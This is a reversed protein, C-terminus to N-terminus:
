KIVKIWHPRASLQEILAPLSGPKFSGFYDSYIISQRPLVLYLPNGKSRAVEELRDLDQRTPLGVKLSDELEGVSSDPNDYSADALAKAVYDASSRSPWGAPALVAITAVPDRASLWRSQELQTRTIPLYSWGGFYGQMSALMLTLFLLWAAGGLAIRRMGHFSRLATAVVPAILVACGPLSYLFVRFIAEGGYSQGGLLFMSSFALIGAAWPAGVRRWLILFCILALLWISASLSRDAFMTFVRGDSGRTAINSNSNALPNSGTFLGYQEVYRLRPLIYAVEVAAFALPLWLPRIQRFVALAVTVAVVWVPTLQHSPVLAAFVALSLYGAAPYKKSYALLALCALAMILGSAQPAFYDQGVWNVLEALMAATLATRKGLGLGMALATVLIAMLLHIVPSFWHAVDVPDLGTITSFWSMATFFAPWQNYVDISAPALKHNSLIYDVVGIHKYTWSYIPIETVLTVTLRQIVIVSVIALSASTLRNAAIAVMFATIALATALALLVGGTTPLLGFEGVQTKRVLPVAVLWIALALTLLAAPVFHKIHALRGSQTTASQRASDILRSDGEISTATM